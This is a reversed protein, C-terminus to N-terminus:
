AFLASNRSYFLSHRCHLELRVASFASSRSCFSLADVERLLQDHKLGLVRLQFCPASFVHSLVLLLIQICQM